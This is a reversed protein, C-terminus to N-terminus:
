ASAAPSAGCAAPSQLAAEVYATAFRCTESLLDLSVGLSALTGENCLSLMFSHGPRQLERSSYTINNILMARTPRQPDWVESAVKAIAPCARLANGDRFVVIRLEFKHGFCAHHPDPITSSDIFDCITYPFAREFSGYRFGVSALSRDVTAEIQSRTASGDLFFEIGDGQGTGRPKILLPTGRTELTSALDRILEQRSGARRHPECARVSPFASDPGLAMRDLVDYAVSKDAGAVFSRNIAVFPPPRDEGTRGWVDLCLRDNVIGAVRRGHLWAEGSRVEVAEGLEASFGLVITIDGSASSTPSSARLRDLTTVSVDRGLARLGALLADVYFLKEHLLTNQRPASSPPGGSASVLVVSPGRERLLPAVQSLTTLVASIVGLPLNTLGGMGSGNLEILGVRQSRPTGTVLFDLPAVCFGQLVAPNVERHSCTLAHDVIRPDQNDRITSRDELAGGLLPAVGLLTPLSVSLHADRPMPQPPPKANAYTPRLV